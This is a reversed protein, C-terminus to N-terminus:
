KGSRFASPFAKTRATPLEGPSVLLSVNMKYTDAMVNESFESWRVFAYKTGSSSVTFARM